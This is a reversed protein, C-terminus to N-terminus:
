SPLKLLETEQTGPGAPHKPGRVLRTKLFPHVGPAVWYTDQSDLSTTCEVKLTDFSGAPVTIKEAAVVTCGWESESTRGTALNTSKQPRKWSSGVALPPGWGAPPDYTVMPKGEANLLALWRGDSPQQLLTGAGTKLALAPAGNWTVDPMRTITTQMDKGFSGTNRQAASWSSGVPAPTWTDIRPSTACGALAAALLAALTTSRLITTTSM